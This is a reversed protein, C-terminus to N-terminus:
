GCKNNMGTYNVDWHTKSWYLRERRNQIQTCKNHQEDVRVIRDVLEVVGERGTIVEAWTVLTAVYEVVSVKEMVLKLSNMVSENGTKDRTGRVEIPHWKSNGAGRNSWSSSNGAGINSWQISNGAGLCSCWKAPGYHVFHPNVALIYDSSFLWRHMM